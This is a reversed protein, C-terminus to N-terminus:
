LRWTLRGDEPAYEVYDPKWKNPVPFPIWGKRCSGVPTVKDQPYLPQILTEPWYDGAPEITTGDNGNLSWPEWSVAIDDPYDTSVLCWRVEIAVYKYGPRPIFEKRDAPSLTANDSYDLVGVRVRTKYTGDDATLAKTKGLESGTPETTTPAATTTTPAATTVTTSSSTAATEAQKGGPSSCASLLALAILLKRVPEVEQSYGSPCRTTEARVPHGNDLQAPITGPWSRCTRREGSQRAAIRRWLRRPTKGVAAMSLRLGPALEPVSLKLREADQVVAAM